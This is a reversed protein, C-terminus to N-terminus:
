ATDGSGVSNLTIGQRVLTEYAPVAEELHHARAYALAADHLAQRRQMAGQTGPALRVLHDALARADGIEFGLTAGDRTMNCADESCYSTIVPTGIVMSELVSNSFGEYESCLVSVSAARIIPYPNKQWGHLTVRHRIGAAAIRAEIESRQPGDGVLDLHWDLAPDLGTVADLVTDIRKIPDFRAVMCIRLANDSGALTVPEAARTRVKAPEIMNPVRLIPKDASRYHTTIERLGDASNAAVLDAAGYSWRYLPQRLQAAHRGSFRTSETYPRTIETMITAPRQRLGRTAAWLVLNPYLGLSLIAQPRRAAILRRLALIAPLYHAKGAWGLSVFDQGPLLDPMECRHLAVGTATGDFLHEMLLSFRREAGGGGPASGLIMATPIQQATM